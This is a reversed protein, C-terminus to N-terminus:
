RTVNENKEPNKKGSKRMSKEEIERLEKLM